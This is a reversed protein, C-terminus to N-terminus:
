VADGVELFSVNTFRRDEIAMRVESTCIIWAPLEFVRFIDAGELGNAAVYLGKGEQRPTHVLVLNKTDPVWRHKRVEVGEIRYEKHGCTSCTSVERITSRGLDAHLWATVWLESLPPGHYPLWVRPKTRKSTYQPPRLSPKQWMLVSEFEFGQFRPQLVTRVRQTTAVDGAAWVFDGVVDSDPLWEITLPPVRRQASSGCESCVGPSASPCWTGHRAARAFRSDEPDNLRFLRM